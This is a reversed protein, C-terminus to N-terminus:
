LGHRRKYWCSTYLLGTNKRAIACALSVHRRSNSWSFTSGKSKLKRSMRTEDIHGLRSEGTVLCTGKPWAKTEVRNNNISENAEKNNINGHIATDDKNKDCDTIVMNSNLMYDQHRSKRVEM